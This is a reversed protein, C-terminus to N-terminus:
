LWVCSCVNATGTVELYIVALVAWSPVPYYDIIQEINEFLHLIYYKLPMPCVFIYKFCAKTPYQLIVTCVYLPMRTMVCLSHFPEHFVDSVWMIISVYRLNCGVLDAALIFICVIFRLFSTRHNWWQWWFHKYVCDFSGCYFLVEFISCWHLEPDVCFWRGIGRSWM